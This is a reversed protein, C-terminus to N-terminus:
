RDEEEARGRGGVDERSRWDDCGGRGGPELLRMKKKKMEKKKKAKKKAV